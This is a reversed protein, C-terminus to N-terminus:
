YIITGMSNNELDYIALRTVSLNVLTHSLIKQQRDPDAASVCAIVSM